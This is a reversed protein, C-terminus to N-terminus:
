PPVQPWIKVWEGCTQCSGAMPASSASANRSREAASSTPGHIMWEDYRTFRAVGLASRRSLDM